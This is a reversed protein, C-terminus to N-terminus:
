GIRVRKDFAAFRERTLRSQGAFGFVGVFEVAFVCALGSGKGCIAQQGPSQGFSADAVDLQEVRAPIVVAIQVAFQFLIAFGGILRAGRQHGIQLLAAHQIVRQHDPAALKAATGHDLALDTGAFGTSVMVRTAEAHPHRAASGLGADIALRVIKRKVHGFAFQVNVVQVGRDQVQHPDIVFTQSKPMLTSGEAQGVDVAM